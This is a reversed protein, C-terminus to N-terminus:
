TRSPAVASKRGTAGLIGNALKALDALNDLNTIHLSGYGKLAEPLEAETGVLVPVIFKGANIAAEIELSLWLSPRGSILFVSLDAEAIVRPIWAQAPVGSPAEDTSLIRVNLKQLAARIQHVAEADAVGGSVFATTAPLHGAVEAVLNSAVSRLLGKMGTGRFAPQQAPPTESAEEDSEEDRAEAVAGADEVLTLGHSLRQREGTRSVVEIFITFEGWGSAALRFGSRRARSERLPNPFTSHLTYIVHDIADLESAEGTLWVAWKWRGDGVYTSSQKVQISM